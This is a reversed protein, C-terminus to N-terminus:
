KKASTKPKKVTKKILAKKKSKGKCDECEECDSDCNSLVAVSNTLLFYAEKESADIVEGKKLNNYDRILKIKKM